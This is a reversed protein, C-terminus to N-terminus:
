YTVLVRTRNLLHDESQEGPNLVNEQLEEHAIKVSNGLKVDNM